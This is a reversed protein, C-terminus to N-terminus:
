GRIIKLLECVKCIEKSSPEGCLICSSLKFKMKEKTKLHKIIENMFYYFNERSGAFTSEIKNMHVRVVNRMGEQAYPCEDMHFPIGKVLAYAAIEREPTTSLPKIRKVFLESISEDCNMKLSSEIDGRFFNMLYTQSEDDLNHGTAVKSAKLERSLINLARRRFVGCFTCPGRAGRLVKNKEVIENLTYGFIEKFSVIIHTLDLEKTNRKAFEIAKDRYGKIGEDVTVAFLECKVKNLMEKLIYLTLTSDKGGSLAVAVRDGPKIM